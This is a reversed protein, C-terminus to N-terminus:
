LGLLPAFEDFFDREVRCLDAGDPIWATSGESCDERWCVTRKSFPCWFGGRQGECGQRRCSHISTTRKLCAEVAYRNLLASDDPPSTEEENLILEIYEDVDERWYRAGLSAFPGKYEKIGCKKIFELADDNGVALYASLTSDSLIPGPYELVLNLIVHGIVYAIVRVTQEHDEEGVDEKISMLRNTVWPNSSSLRSFYLSLSPELYDRGLIKATLSSINHSDSYHQEVASVIQSFGDYVGFIYHVSANLDPIPVRMGFLDPQSPLKDLHGRSFDAVPILQRQCWNRVNAGQFGRMGGKTLDYDTVVFAINDGAHETLLDDPDGEEGGPAWLCIEVAREDINEELAKKLAAIEDPKDDVLLIRNLSQDTM